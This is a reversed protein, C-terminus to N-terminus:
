QTQTVASLNQPELMDMDESTVPMNPEFPNTESRLLAARSLPQEEEGILRFVARVSRRMEDLADEFAALARLLFGDFDPSCGCMSFHQHLNERLM